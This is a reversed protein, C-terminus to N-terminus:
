EGLLKRLYVVSEEVATDEDPFDPYMNAMEIYLGGHFSVTRLIEVFRPLDFEGRGLPAAPWWLEPNGRSAEVTIMDKLHVMRIRPAALQAAELLDDGVRVANGTDFCIGLNEAGVADLLAVLDRMNFDAHNEVALTLGLKIAEAAIERLVPILRQIRQQAPEKWRFQNGCVVRMLSCGLARAVPLMLLVDEVKRPNTGGGLGDSHGWDLVPTLKYQQLEDRLAGATAMNLDPLFVSQLSVTSVGLAAARRLFDGTQWRVKLPQEWPTVEGFYRHYAFSDIGISITM